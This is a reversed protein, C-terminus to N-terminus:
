GVLRIRSSHTLVTSGSGAAKVLGAWWQMMSHRQELHDSRNYARRVENKDVHALAAETVDPPFGEGNFATSAIFRLGHLALISGSGARKLAANVTQSNMPQNPKTRSPFTSERGGDLPKMMELIAPARDSLPVTHNRNM